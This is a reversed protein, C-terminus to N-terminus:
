SRLVYMGGTKEMGLVELLHGARADGSSVGMLIRDAGTYFAWEKFEKWLQPGAGRSIFFMDTAYSKKANFFFPEITGALTGIVKEDNYAVLALTDKSRIVYELVKSLSPRHIPVDSLNSTTHYDELFEIIGALDDLTARRVEM